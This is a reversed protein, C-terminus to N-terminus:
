YSSETPPLAELLYRGGEFGDVVPLTLRRVPLGTAASNGLRDREAL